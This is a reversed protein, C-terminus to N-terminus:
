RLALPVSESLSTGQVSVFSLSLREADKPWTVAVSNRGPHAETQAVRGFGAARKAAVRLRGPHSLALVVRRTGHRVKGVAMVRMTPPQAIEANLRLSADCYEASMGRQCLQGTLDAM